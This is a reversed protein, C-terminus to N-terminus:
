NIERVIVSSNTRLTVTSSNVESAFGVNISCSSGAYLICEFGIFHPITASGLGTTTIFSGTGGYSGTASYLNANLAPTVSNSIAGTFLGTVTVTGTASLGVTIGTTTTSSTFGGLMRVHYTKGNGVSFGLGSVTGMVTTSSSTNSTLRLVKDYSYFPASSTGNSRLIYGTTPTSLKAIANTASAYLIDGIAYTTQGTGGYTASQIHATTSFSTSAQYAM